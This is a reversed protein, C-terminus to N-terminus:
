KGLYEHGLLLLSLSQPINTTQSSFSNDTKSEESSICIIILLYPMCICIVIINTFQLVCM